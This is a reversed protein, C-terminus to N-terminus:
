IYIHTHTYSFTNRKRLTKQKQDLFIFNCVIVSACMFLKGKKKNHTQLKM